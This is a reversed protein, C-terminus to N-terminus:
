EILTNSLMIFRPTHCVPCAFMLANLPLAVACPSSWAPYPEAKGGAREIFLGISYLAVSLM